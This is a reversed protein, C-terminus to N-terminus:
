TKPPLFFDLKLFMTYCGCQFPEYFLTLFFMDKEKLNLQEILVPIILVFHEYRVM